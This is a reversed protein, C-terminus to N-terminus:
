GKDVLVHPFVPHDDAAFYHQHNEWDKIKALDRPEGREIIRQRRVEESVLVYHVEVNHGLRSELAKPWNSQQMEKTFPGVVVVDQIALNEKAITFLTDYIPERFHEKFWPSDRDDPDHGAANIGARVVTETVTDIDLFVARKEAALKRGYTTKGAGPRGCIVYCTSM